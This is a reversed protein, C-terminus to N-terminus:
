RNNMFYLHFRSVSYLASEIQQAAIPYSLKFVEQGEQGNATLQQWRVLFDSGSLTNMPENFTTMLLPVDVSITRSGKLSDNYHIQLQPGPAAPKICEVMLVVSGQALGSMEKPFPSLEFRLLGSSDVFDGTFSTLAGPSQNKYLLTVRAQSGRVEVKSALQLTGDDYFPGGNAAIANRLWLKHQEVQSPTLPAAIKNTSGSPQVDGFPDSGFPDSGFPNDLPNVPPPLDPTESLLDLLDGGGKAPPQQPLAPAAPAATETAFPDDSFGSSFTNAVPASPAANMDLGLLDIELVDSIEVEDERSADEKSNKRHLGANVEKDDDKTDFAGETTELRIHMVSMFKEIFYEIATALRVADKTRFIYENRRSFSSDAFVNLLLALKGAQSLLSWKYFDTYVWFYRERDFGNNNADPTCVSIGNASVKLSTSYDTSPLIGLPDVKPKVKFDVEEDPLIAVDEDVARTILRLWKQVNEQSEACLTWEREITVIDFSHPPIEGSELTKNSGPRIFTAKSLDVINRHNKESSYMPCETFDSYYVLFHGQSTKYLVFYRKLWSKANGVGVGGQKLLWGQHLVVKHWHPKVARNEHPVVTDKPASVSLVGSSINSKRPVMKAGPRVLIGDQDVVETNGVPPEPSPKEGSLTQVSVIPRGHTSGLKVQEGNSVKYNNWYYELTHKVDRIYHVGFFVSEGNKLQIEIGSDNMRFNDNDIAQWDEIESYSYESRNSSHIHGSQLILSEDTILLQSDSRYQNSVASAGRVNLLAFTNYGEYIHQLAIEMRRSDGQACPKYSGKNLELAMNRMESLSPLKGAPLESINPRKRQFPKPKTSGAFMGVYLGTPPRWGFKNNGAIGAFRLKLEGEFEISNAMILIIMNATASIKWGIKVESNAHDWAM